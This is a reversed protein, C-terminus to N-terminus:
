ATGRDRCVLAPPLCPIRGAADHGVFLSSVPLYADGDRSPTTVSAAIVEVWLRPLSVTARHVTIDCGRGARGGRWADPSVDHLSASALRPSAVGAADRTPDPAGSPDDFTRVPQGKM